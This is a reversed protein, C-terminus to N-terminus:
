NKAVWIWIGIRFLYKPHPYLPKAKQLFSPQNTSFMSLPSVTGFHTSIFQGFIGWIGWFEDPWNTHGLGFTQSKSSFLSWQADKTRASFCKEFKICFMMLGTTVKNWMAVKHIYKKITPHCWKKFHPNISQNSQLLTHLGSRLIKIAYSTKLYARIPWIKEFFELSTFYM